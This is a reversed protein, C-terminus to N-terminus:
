RRWLSFRSSRGATSSQDDADLFRDAFSILERSIPCDPEDLVLIRGQNMALPVLRSSPLAVDVKLGVATEVDAVELGVRADARNLIFHRKADSFGLRDLADIEKGLNRISAVDMSALFVLDTARDIAALAREDLGSATDVIVHPFDIALLDIIRGAIEDTVAEGEEPMGSGALVFLGSREHRTLYVKLTTSDFTPIMALEGVTHEPVMGMVSAVDGFVCDLDVIVSPGSARATLAMGLNTTFMTKGSGGKPSLVVIVKNDSEPATVANAARLHASRQAASLLAPVLESDIESPEVIDRIGSRAGKRWLDNTAERLLVVGVDPHNQDLYRGVELALDEPVDPGICVANYRHLAISDAIKSADPGGNFDKWQHGKFQLEGISGALQKELTLDDTLIAVPLPTESTM